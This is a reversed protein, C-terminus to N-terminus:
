GASEDKNNEHRVGKEYEQSGYIYLLKLFLAVGEEGDFDAIKVSENGYRAVLYPKKKATYKIDFGFDKAM